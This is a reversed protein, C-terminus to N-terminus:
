KGHVGDYCLWLGLLTVLVASVIPLARLLRGAGFRAEVFRPAQVVLIGIAVLVVALGASFVLVTPLVLWFESRGASVFLVAVADWCPIIGGTIGLITLSGWHLRRDSAHEPHHHHHGGDLHIHDAKGALRQLLLAFGMCAVILGMILGLGNQVWAKFSQQAEGPLIVLVLAIAIVVGTHTLTTVLGLYVAHWWTGREGVLYAAVLTKGHGPTLAHAAGFVFALVLTVFVGYDASRFLTELSYWEGHVQRAAKPEAPLEQVEVVGTTGNPQGTPAAFVVLIERLRSDDGPERQEPPRKLLAEDPATKSRVAAGSEDILSLKIQGDDYLYNQERLRFTTEGNADLDFFSEFVFDCRLHGLATGDEDQLREKRSLCRFDAIEKKNVRVVLRDGYIPAYIKTFEAYYDLPRGRFDLPNALDRFDKMDNLYVTTEDVELRYEVRVRIRNPADGKLLRVVITRDHADKPVPHAGSSSVGVVLATLAFAFRLTRAM